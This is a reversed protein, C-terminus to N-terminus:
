RGFLGSEYWVIGVGHHNNSESPLFPIDLKPKM